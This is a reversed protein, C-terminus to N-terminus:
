SLCAIRVPSAFQATHVGVRDHGRGGQGRVVARGPDALDVAFIEPRPVWVQSVPCHAFELLNNLVSRLPVNLAANDLLGRIVAPNWGINETKVRRTLKSLFAGITKVLGRLFPAGLNTMIRVAPAFFLALSESYKRALVKPLVEGFVLVAAAVAAPILFGAWRFPIGWIEGSELALSTALVGLGVNMLNNALLLVALVQDPKKEWFALRGPHTKGLRTLQMRSLSMFATEVCSVCASVALGAFGVGIKLFFHAAPTM